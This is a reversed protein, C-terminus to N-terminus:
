MYNPGVLFPIYFQFNNYIAVIVKHTIIVQEQAFDFDIKCPFVSKCSPGGKQLISGIEFAAISQEIATIESNLDPDEEDVLGTLILKYIRFIFIFIKCKKFLKQSHLIESTDM